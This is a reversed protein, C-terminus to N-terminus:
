CSLSSSYSPDLSKTPHIFSMRIIDIMSSQAQPRLTLEWEERNNQGNYTMEATGLLYPKRRGQSDQFADFEDLQKKTYISKGLGIDKILLTEIQVEDAPLMAPDNCERLMMASCPGSQFSHPIVTYQLPPLSERPPSCAVKM